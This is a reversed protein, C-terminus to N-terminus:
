LKTILMKSVTGMKLVLSSHKEAGKMSEKM